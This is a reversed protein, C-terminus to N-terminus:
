GSAKMLGSAQETAAQCFARVDAEYSTGPDTWQFRHVKQLKGSLSASFIRFYKDEWSDDSDCIRQAERALEIFERHNRLM